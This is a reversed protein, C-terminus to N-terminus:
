RLLQNVTAILKQTDGSKLLYADAAWVNFDQQYNDYATVIVVPTKIAKHRFESLFSVGDQDGGLRIDLLILDPTFSAVLSWAEIADAATAIEYGVAELETKYLLRINQEDDIVLIKKTM